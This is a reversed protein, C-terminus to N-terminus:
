QPTIGIKLKHIGVNMYDKYPDIYVICVYIYNAVTSTTSCVCM